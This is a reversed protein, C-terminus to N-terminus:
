NFGLPQLYFYLSYDSCISCCRRRRRCRHPLSCELTIHRKLQWEMGMPRGYILLVCLTCTCPIFYCHGLPTTERKSAHFISPNSRRCVSLANQRTVGFLQQINKLVEPWKRLVYANLLALGVCLHRSLTLHTHMNSHRNAADSSWSWAGNSERRLSLASLSRWCFIIDTRINPELTRENM